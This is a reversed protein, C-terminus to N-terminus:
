WHAAAPRTPAPLDEVPEAHRALGVVRDGTGAVDGAADDFAAQALADEM